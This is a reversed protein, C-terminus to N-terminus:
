GLGPADAVASVKGNTPKDRDGKIDGPGPM